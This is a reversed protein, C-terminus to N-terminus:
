RIRLSENQKITAGQIEEGNQLAELLKRKDVKKVEEVEIYESPIGELNSIEVSPKNKSISFTFLKGKFSTKDIARMYSELYLKLGQQRNELAKRRSSIRAEEDKLSTIDGEMERLVKAISEAKVEFDDDLKTLGDVVIEMPIEPNDLLAQINRYGDAIEYLKAM